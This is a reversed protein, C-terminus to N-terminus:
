ELELRITPGAGNLLAQIQQEYDAILPDYEAIEAANNGQEHKRFGFLYTINQPRWQHFHLENKRVLLELLRDYDQSLQFRSANSSETTPLDILPVSGTPLVLVCSALVTASQSTDVVLVGPRLWPRNLKLDISRSNASIEAPVSAAVSQSNENTRLAVILEDNPTAFLTEALILSVCRYGRSNWHMGNDTLSNLLAMKLDPHESAVLGARWFGVTEAAQLLRQEFEDFLNVCLCGTQQAVTTVTESYGSIADNWMSADPLPPPTQLLPHPTVLIVEATTVKIDSILQRLQQEFSEADAVSQEQMAENQGYNILVVDPEEARLREIMRAYGKAPTDFIGRSEAFVTDASWGLNRFTLGKTGSTMLAAELHGFQQAREIFTGGLLVVHDNEHFRFRGDQIRRATQRPQFSSVTMTGWDVDALQLDIAQWDKDNFDTKQWGVPPQAAKMRCAIKKTPENSGLRVAVPVSNGAAQSEIALCNAGSRLLEKVRLAANPGGESDSRLRQGNLWIRCVAPDVIGVLADSDSPPNVQFVHRFWRTAAPSDAKASNNQQGFAPLPLLALFVANLVVLRHRDFLFRIM